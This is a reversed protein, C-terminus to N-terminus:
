GFKSDNQKVSFLPKIPPSFASPRGRWLLLEAGWLLAILFGLMHSDMKIAPCDHRPSYRAFYQYVQRFELYFVM